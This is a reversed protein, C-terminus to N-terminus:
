QTRSREGAIRGGDEVVDPARGVNMYTWRREEAMGDLAWRAVMDCNMTYFQWQVRFTTAQKTICPLVRYLLEDFMEAPSIRMFNIFAAENEWRLERMLQDYLDVRPRRM